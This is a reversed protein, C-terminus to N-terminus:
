GGVFNVFSLDPGARSIRSSPLEFLPGQIIGSCLCIPGQACGDVEYDLWRTVTV